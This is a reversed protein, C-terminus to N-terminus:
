FLWPILAQSLQLVTMVLMTILGAHATRITSKIVSALLDSAEFQRISARNQKAFRKGLLRWLLGTRDLVALRATDRADNQGIHVADNRLTEILEQLPKPDVTPYAYKTFAYYPTPQIRELIGREVLLMAVRDILSSRLTAVGTWHLLTRQVRSDRMQVLLFELVPDPHAEQRLVEVKAQLAKGLIAISGDIELEGLMGVAVALRSWSMRRHRGTDPQLASLLAEEHLRLGSAKPEPIPRSAPEILPETEM